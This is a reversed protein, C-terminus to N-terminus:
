KFVLLKGEAQLRQKAERWGPMRNSEFTYTRIESAIRASTRMAELHAGTRAFRKVDEESEWASLTYHLLGLGTKRFQRFGNEQEM